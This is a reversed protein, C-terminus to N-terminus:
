SVSSKQAELRTAHLHVLRDMFADSRRDDWGEHEFMEYLALEEETFPNGEAEQLNVAEMHRKAKEQLDLSSALRKEYSPRAAEARASAMELLYADVKGLEWAEQEFMSFMEIDEDTLHTDLNNM